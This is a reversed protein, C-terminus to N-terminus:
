LIEHSVEVPCTDFNWSVRTQCPGHFLKQMCRLLLVKMWICSNRFYRIMGSVGFWDYSLWSTVVIESIIVCTTDISVLKFLLRPILWRGFVLGMFLTLRWFWPNLICTWFLILCLTWILFVLTMPFIPNLFPSGNERIKHTFNLQESTTWPNWDLNKRVYHGRM